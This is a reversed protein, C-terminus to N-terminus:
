RDRFGGPLRRSQVVEVALAGGAAAHSQRRVCRSAPDVGAAADWGLALYCEDSVVVTGRERAWAVVKRLHEVPLVQRHPQSPSNLWVLAPGPPGLATLSDARVPIAGALRAGVEYTPYALEPIVVSTAPASCRAADTAVGGAGQLRDDATRRRPDVGTVGHPARLAAVATQACSPRATRPRIARSDAGVRSRPGSSRGAGPGGAHWGVPRRDRGPAGAGPQPPSATGPSTPFIGPRLTPCSLDAATMRRRRRCTRSGSRTTTSRASRRRAAPHVSNTSSTPTPRPTTRGSDPVDDEYYIAEVPCVPECAGCDVCEDPHIYLMRAGEYICDVPCEEICAKDMVDVCPEAIVYTM